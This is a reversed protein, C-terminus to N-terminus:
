VTDENMLRLSASHGLPGIARLEIHQPSAQLKAAPMASGTLGIKQEAAEGVPKQVPEGIFLKGSEITEEAAAVGVEIIPHGAPLGHRVVMVVVDHFKKFLM